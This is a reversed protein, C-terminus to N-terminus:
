FTTLLVHYLSYIGRYYCQIYCTNKSLINIIM